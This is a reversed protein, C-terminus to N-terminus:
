SSRRARERHAGALGARGRRRARWTGRTAGADSDGTRSFGEAEDLNGKEVLAGGLDALNNAIDAHRQSRSEGRLKLAQRAHHEAQDYLGIMLYTHGITDHLSAQIEPQRGFEEGVRRAADDLVEKLLVTDRDRAIAPDVSALMDALFQRIADAKAAQSAVETRRQEALREAARARNREWTVQALAASLLVFAAAVGSVFLRNRGAFKRLQYLTTVPRASIPQNSLYRRIDAALDSASQYRRRRDKELAKAVITELDGRFVRNISSLPAPDDEAIARAAEPITRGSMDYPLRGTLLQYCLVGLGYVDSRTDLEQPNGAVQEPSMYALTGILQGVDTQLTTLQVDADTARAVGFDLIKPQGQEDVLINGPKLDRHIVGKQHAHHVADCIDALLALRQRVSPKRQSAYEGLTEGRVYEMAFFPWKATLGGRTQVDAVGAEHIHAIGPHALQGLVSAEHEFRRLMTPSMGSPRVVKLAVKRRPHEQEALYVVGMGGEGLTGLISYRGIRDPVPESEAAHLARELGPRLGEFRPLAALPNGSRDEQALLAEVESRVNLDSACAQDLYESREAAAFERATLFLERVREFDQPTM